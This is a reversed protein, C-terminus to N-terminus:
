KKGGQQVSAGAKTTDVYPVKKAPGPRTVPAAIETVGFTVPVTFRTKASDSLEITFSKKFESEDFLKDVRVKIEKSKGPKIEDDPLAIEVFGFPQSVLKMRVPASSINKVLLKQEKAREEANWKLRTSSLSVTSLSDPSEGNYIKVNLRLQFSSRDNDNCTVTASKALIGRQTATAHFILEVSGSDGVAIM